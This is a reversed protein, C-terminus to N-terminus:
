ATAVLMFSMVSTWISRVFPSRSALRGSAVPTAETASM